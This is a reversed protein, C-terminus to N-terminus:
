GRNILLGILVAGMIATGIWLYLSLKRDEEEAEILAEVLFVPIETLTDNIPDLSDKIKALFKLKESTRM